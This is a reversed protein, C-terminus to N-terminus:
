PRSRQPRLFGLIKFADDMPAYGIVRKTKEVSLRKYRNDSVGNVVTFGQLEAEICHTLLAGVDRVSIFAAIHRPSHREGATFSAVNAIRVAVAAMTGDYAHMSALAEGFAKNAGYLNSPRAPADESVQLDTPYGEVAQASSAFIFRKCGQAKAADLMNYTGIINIPLLSDM